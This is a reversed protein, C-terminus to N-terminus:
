VKSWADEVNRVAVAATVLLDDVATVLRECASTAETLSLIISILVIIHAKSM